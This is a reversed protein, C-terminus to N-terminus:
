MTTTTTSTTAASSTTHSDTSVYEILFPKVYLLQSHLLQLLFFFSTTCSTLPKYSVESVSLSLHITLHFWALLSFNEDAFRIQVFCAFCTDVSM